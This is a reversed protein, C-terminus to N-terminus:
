NNKLDSNMSGTCFHEIGSIIYFFIANYALMLQSVSYAWNAHGISGSIVVGLNSFVRLKFYETSLIGANNDDLDLVSM